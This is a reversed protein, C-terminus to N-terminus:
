PLRYLQIDGDTYRVMVTRDLSLYTDPPYRAVVQGARDHLWIEQGKQRRTVLFHPTIQLPWGPARWLLEGQDSYVGTGNQLVAIRVVGQDDPWVIPRAYQDSPAQWLQEGDLGRAELFGAYRVFYFRDDRPDLAFEAGVHLGEYNTVLQGDQFLRPRGAGHNGFWSLLMRGDAGLAARRSGDKAEYLLSFTVSGGAGPDLRYAKWDTGFYAASMGPHPSDPRVGEGIAMFDGRWDFGEHFGPPDPAAVTGLVTGTAPNFLCGQHGSFLMARDRSQWFLTRVAGQCDAQWAVSGDPRVAELTKGDKRVGILLDGAVWWPDALWGALATGAKGPAPWTAFPVRLEPLDDATDPQARPALPGDAAPGPAGILDPQQQPPVPGPPPAPVPPQSCAALALAAAVAIGAVRKRM